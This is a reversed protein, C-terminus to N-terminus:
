MGIDHTSQRFVINAFLDNTFDGHSYPVGIYSRANNAFNATGPRQVIILTLRQTACRLGLPQGSGRQNDMRSPVWIRADAGTQFYHVDKVLCPRIHAMGSDAMDFPRDHLMLFTAFQCFRTTGCGAPGEASHICDLAEGPRLGLLSEVPRNLVAALKDNALVIQRERNLIMAPEPFSHLLAGILRNGALKQCQTQIKEADEREAPVLLTPLTLNRM